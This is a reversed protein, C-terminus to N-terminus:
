QSQLIKAVIGSRTDVKLKGMIHKLHDKVTHESIHLVAGVEKNTKGRVIQEAVSQERQTLKSAHFIKDVRIGQSVKEILILLQSADLGDTNRALPVARFLYTEGGQIANHLMIIQCDPDRPSHKTELTYGTYIRRIIGPLAMDRRELETHSEGLSSLIRRAAENIYILRAKPGVILVAPPTRKRALAHTKETSHM